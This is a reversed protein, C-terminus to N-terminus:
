VELKRPLGRAYVARTAVASPNRAERKVAAREEEERRIRSNVASIQATRSRKIAQERGSGTRRYEEWLPEIGHGNLLTAIAAMPEGHPSGYFWEGTHRLHELAIHISSEIEDYRFVEDVSLISIRRYPIPCGTQMSAIRSRVDATMGVKFWELGAHEFEVIYIGGKAAYQRRYTM